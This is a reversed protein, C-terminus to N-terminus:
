KGDSAETPTFINTSLERLIRKRQKEKSRTLFYIIKAMAGRPHYPALPFAVSYEKYEYDTM